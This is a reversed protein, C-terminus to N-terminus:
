HPKTLFLLLFHKLLKFSLHNNFCRFDSKWTLGWLWCTALLLNTKQRGTIIEFPMQDQYIAKIQLRRRLVLMKIMTTVRIKKKDHSGLFVRLISKTIKNALAIYQLQPPKCVASIPWLCCIFPVKQPWKLVKTWTQNIRHHPITAVYM